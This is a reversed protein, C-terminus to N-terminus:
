KSFFSKSPKLAKKHRPRLFPLARWKEKDFLKRWPALM